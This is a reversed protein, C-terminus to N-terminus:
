RPRLFVCGLPPLDLRLSRARGQAPVAEAALVRDGHVVNGGGYRAADTNLAEYWSDAADDPLGLRYDHRPVPTFNCAIIILGGAGDRRVWTLLSQEADGGEIWENGARGAIFDNGGLGFFRDHGVSLQEGYMTDPGASGTVIFREISSYYHRGGVNKINITAFSGLYLQPLIFDFEGFDIMNKNRMQMAIM